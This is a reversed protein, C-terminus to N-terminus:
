GNPKVEETPSEAATANERRRDNAAAEVACTLGSTPLEGAWAQGDQVFVPRGGPEPQPAAVTGVTAVTVAVGADLAGFDEAAVQGLQASLREIDEASVMGALREMEEQLADGWVLGAATVCGVMVGDGRMWGLGTQKAAKARRAHGVLAAFLVRDAGFIWMFFRMLPVLLFRM